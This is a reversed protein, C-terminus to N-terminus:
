PEALVAHFEILEIEWECICEPCTIHFITITTDPTMSKMHVSLRQM